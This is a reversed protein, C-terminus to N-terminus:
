DSSKAKLTMKETLRQEVCKEVVKSHNLLAITAERKSVPVFKAGDRVYLQTDATDAHAQGAFCSAALISLVMIKSGIILQRYFLTIHIFRGCRFPRYFMEDVKCVVVKM